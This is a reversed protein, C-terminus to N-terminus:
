ADPVATPHRRGRPDHSHPRPSQQWPADLFHWLYLNLLLPSLPGGQRIGHKSGTDLVRRLLRRFDESPVHQSGLGAAERGPVRTFADRVDEAVFVYRGEGLAIQEALALAHLRGHGPRYGLINRGFLPDLLPQIVEVVARQVVRDEINILSIPRTGRSPDARDKPIKM